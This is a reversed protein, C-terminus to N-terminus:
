YMPAYLQGLKFAHRVQNLYSNEIDSFTKILTSTILESKDISKNTDNDNLNKELVDFIIKSAFDSVQWGGHGDFIASCQWDKVIKQKIARDESPNNADYTATYATPKNSKFIPASYAQSHLLTISTGAGLSLLSLRRTIAIM